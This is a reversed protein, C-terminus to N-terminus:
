EEAGVPECGLDLREERETRCAEIKEEIGDVRSLLNLLREDSLFDRGPSLKRIEAIREGILRCVKRKKKALEHIDYTLSIGTTSSRLTGFGKELVGVFHDGAHQINYRLGKGM